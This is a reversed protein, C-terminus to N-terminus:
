KLLSRGTIEQMLNKQHTIKGTTSPKKSSKVEGKDDQFSNGEKTASNDMSWVEWCHLIEKQYM